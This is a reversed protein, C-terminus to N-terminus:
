ERQAREDREGDATTAGGLDGWRSQLIAIIAPGATETRMIRAGVGVVRWGRARAADVERRELGGEPGILVAVRRAPAMEALATGLASTEGEWLCLAVDVDRALDLCADLPRPPAVEPVVRRRSQKAAERAVRQWRSVRAATQREALRVVTRAALAPVVRTVGLETAARVIAELKDGKPLGQVLTIALPSEAAADAVGVVIGAARPRVVDLRVTYDHGAGDTAVVTDGPGLRLVRALHRTELADFTVRGDVVREPAIAFRRM